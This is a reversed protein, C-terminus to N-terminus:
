IDVDLKIKMWASSRGEHYPSAIQKAVLGELKRAVALQYLEEGKEVVHDSYRVRSDDRLVKRLLEKREILPVEHLDYGDFYVIDFIYFVAPTSELLQASPRQVGFRAQLRQFDSRGESDLVVIEGDLWAERADVHKALDSM